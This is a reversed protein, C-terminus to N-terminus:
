KSLQSMAKREEKLEKILAKFAWEKSNATVMAILPSDKSINRLQNLFQQLEYQSTGNFLVVKDKHPKSKIDQNDKVNNLLDKILMDSRQDDIYLCEDIGAAISAAKIKEMDFTSFGYLMLVNRGGPRKRNNLDMKQFSM